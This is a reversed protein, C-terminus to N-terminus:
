FLMVSRDWLSPRQETVVSVQPKGETVSLECRRYALVVSSTIVVLKADVKRAHPPIKAREKTAIPAKQNSRSRPGLAGCKHFGHRVDVHEKGLNGACFASGRHDISCDALPELQHDGFELASKSRDFLVRNGLSVAVFVSAPSQTAKGM